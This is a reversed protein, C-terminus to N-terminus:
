EDFALVKLGTLSDDIQEIADFWKVKCQLCEMTKLISKMEDVKNELELQELNEGLNMVTDDELMPSVIGENAEATMQE